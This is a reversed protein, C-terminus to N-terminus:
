FPNQPALASRAGTPQSGTTPVEGSEMRSKFRRLDERIQTALAPRLLRGVIGPGGAGSTSLRMHVRLRTQNEDRGPHFELSGETAISSGTLSRWRLAEGRREELLIADWQVRVGGPARAVWHSRLDGHEEVSEIHRLIQPLGSLDRWADYVDGPARAITLHETVDIDSPGTLAEPWRGKLGRMALPYAVAAGLASGLVGRRLGYTLAFLAGGIAGARVLSEHPDEQADFSSEEHDQVYEDAM